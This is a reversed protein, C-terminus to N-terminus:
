GQLGQPLSRSSGRELLQVSEHGDKDLQTGLVSHRWSEDSCDGHVEVVAKLVNQLNFQARSSVGFRLAVLLAVLEVSFLCISAIWIPKNTALVLREEQISGPVSITSVNGPASYGNAFAKVASSMFRDVNAGITQLPLPSVPTQQSLVNDYGVTSANLFMADSLSSSQIYADDANNDQDMLAVSSLLAQSLLTAAEFHPLNGVPTSGKYSDRSVSLTGNSALQVIAPALSFNPNCKLMAALPPGPFAGEVEGVSSISIGNANYYSSINSLDVGIDSTILELTTNTGLFLFGSSGDASATENDLYLPFVGKYSFTLGIGCL